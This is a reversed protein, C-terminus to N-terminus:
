KTGGSNKKLLVTQIIIILFIRPVNRGWFAKRKVNSRYTFYM